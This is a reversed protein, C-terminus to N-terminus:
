WLFGGFGCGAAGVSPCLRPFVCGGLSMFGAPHPFWSPSCTTNQCRVQNKNSLSRLAGWCSGVVREQPVSICM